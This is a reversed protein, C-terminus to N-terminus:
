SKQLLGKQAINNIIKQTLKQSIENRAIIDTHTQTTANGHCVANRLNKATEYDQKDSLDMMGQNILWDRQKKGKIPKGNTGIPAASKVAVDLCQMTHILTPTEIDKSKEVIPIQDKVKHGSACFVFPTLNNSNTISSVKQITLNKTTTIRRILNFVTVYIDNINEPVDVLVDMQTDPHALADRIQHLKILKQANDIVGVQESLVFVEDRNNKLFDEPLETNNLLKQRALVKAEFNQLLTQTLLRRTQEVIKIIPEAMSQRFYPSIVKTLFNNKFYEDFNKQNKAGKYSSTFEDYAEALYVLEEIAHPNQRPIEKLPKKDDTKPLILANPSLFIRVNKFSQDTNGLLNIYKKKFVIKTPTLDQHTNNKVWAHYFHTEEITPKRLANNAGITSKGLFDNKRVKFLKKTENSKVILKFFSTNYKKLSDMCEDCFGKTRVYEKFADYLDKIESLSYLVPSKMMVGEFTKKYM